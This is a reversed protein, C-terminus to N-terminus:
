RPRVRDFIAHAERESIPQMRPMVTAKRREFDVSKIQEYLGNELFEIKAESLTFNFGIVNILNDEESYVGIFLQYDGKLLRFHKGFLERAEKISDEYMSSRFEVVREESGYEGPLEEGAAPGYEGTSKKVDPNKSNKTIKEPRKRIREIISRIREITEKITEVKEDELEPLLKFFRFTRVFGDYPYLFIGGVATFM